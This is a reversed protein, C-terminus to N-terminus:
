KNKREQKNFEAHGKCDGCIGYYKGNEAMKIGHVYGLAFFPSVGCCNSKM